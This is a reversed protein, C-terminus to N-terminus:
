TKNSHNSTRHISTIHACINQKAQNPKATTHTNITCFSMRSTWQTTGEAKLRLSGSPLSGWNQRFQLKRKCCHLRRHSQAWGDEWMASQCFFSSTWKCAAATGFPNELPLTNSSQPVKRASNQPELVQNDIGNHEFRDTSVCIWSINAGLTQAVSGCKSNKKGLNARTYDPIRLAFPGVPKSNNYVNKGM